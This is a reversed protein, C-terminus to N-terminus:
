QNNGTPEAKEAPANEAGVSVIEVTDGVWQPIATTSTVRELEVVVGSTTKVQHVVKFQM